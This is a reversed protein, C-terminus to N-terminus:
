ADEGLILTRLRRAAAPVPGIVPCPPNSAALTKAADALPGGGIVVADVDGRAVAEDIMGRLTEVLAQPENMLVYIDTTTTLLASMRDRVGYRVSLATIADFLDPTPAVIAFNGYTAAELMGSEAIGAVPEPLKAKLEQLAPDGFAAVMVGDLPDRGKDFAEVMLDTALKLGADDTIIPPAGVNTMEEVYWRPGLVERAAVAMRETVSVTANPNILLLKHDYTM